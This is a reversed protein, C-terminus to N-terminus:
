GLADNIRHDIESQVIRLSELDLDGVLAMVAYLINSSCSHPQSNPSDEKIASPVTEDQIPVNETENEKDIVHSETNQKSDSVLRQLNPDAKQEQHQEIDSLIEDLLKTGLGRKFANEREDKSVDKNDLKTLNPLLAIVKGRYDEEEACPNDCLWLVQLTDSVSKGEESRIDNKGGNDDVNENIEKKQQRKGKILHVLEKLSGIKNKRLYLERLKLCDKFPSLSTIKNVSLSLIEVNVAQSLISVQM